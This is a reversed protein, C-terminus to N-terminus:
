RWLSLGTSEDFARILPDGILEEVRVEIVFAECGANLHGGFAAGAEDSFAAHAHVFPKGDLLSINGVGSLVELHRDLDFDRYERTDQDYYRLSARRVAGLFNIWATPIGQDTAFETISGVIDAGTELRLVHSAGSEFRYHATM